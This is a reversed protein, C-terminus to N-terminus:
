TNWSWGETERNCFSGTGGRHLHNTLVPPWPHPNWPLTDRHNSVYLGPLRLDGQFFHCTENLLRPELLHSLFTYHSEPKSLSDHFCTQTLYHISHFIILLPHLRHLLPNEPWNFQFDTLHNTLHPLIQQLLFDDPLLPWILPKSLHM